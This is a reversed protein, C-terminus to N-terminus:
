KDVVLFVNGQGGSAIKNVIIYDKQYWVADLDPVIFPLRDEIPLNKKVGM